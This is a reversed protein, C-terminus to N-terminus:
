YGFTAPRIDQEMGIDEAGSTTACQSVTHENFGLDYLAIASPLCLRDDRDVCTVALRYGVQGLECGEIRLGQAGQGVQRRSHLPVTLGLADSKRVHEAYSVVHEQM